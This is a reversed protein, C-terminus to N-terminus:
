NISKIVAQSIKDRLELLAATTFYRVSEGGNFIVKFRLGKGYLVSNTKIEEVKM